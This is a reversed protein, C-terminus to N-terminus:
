LDEKSNLAKKLIEAEEKSITIGKGMKARDPAWERIDYKPERGNWSIINIEKTWGKPSRSLVAITEIIEYEFEAM